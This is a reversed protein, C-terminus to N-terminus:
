RKMGFRWEEEEELSYAMLWSYDEPFLITDGLWLNFLEETVKEEVTSLNIKLIFAYQFYYLKVM